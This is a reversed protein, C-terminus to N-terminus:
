LGGPLDRLVSFSEVIAGSGLLYGTWFRQLEQWYATSENAGDVGIAYVEVNRLDVHIIGPLLATPQAHELVQFRELNLVSTSNRMDSFLVLMRRDANPGQSFIQSALLLAGFVDTSPSDPQLTLSRAKWRVILQTRAAGLREGFYGADPSVSASLLINPQAFSRDTIAIVTVHAGAPIRALVGTVGDINKRFESRGDPGTVSVSQTLDLAIVLDLHEVSEAQARAFLLVTLVVILLKTLASRAANTLLARYFDRWFAAAFIGADDELGSIEAVLMSMRVRTEFLENRLVKWDESNDLRSQWAKHLALGAALEMSLALLVMAWRLLPGTKTYFDNQAPPQAPTASSDDMTVAPENSTGEAALLNGRIVALIMLSALAAACGIAAMGKILKECNWHELVKEVLFPTVIAIGVCYVWAKWGLRFPDFALLTLAFGAVTLVITVAWYYTARRRLHRLDGAPPENRLRDALRHEEAVLFSLEAKSRLISGRNTLNIRREECACYKEVNEVIKEVGATGLHWGVSQPIQEHDM